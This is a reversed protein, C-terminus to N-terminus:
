KRIKWEGSKIKIVEQKGMSFRTSVLRADDLVSHSGGEPTLVDSKDAPFSTQREPWIQAPAAPSLFRCQM